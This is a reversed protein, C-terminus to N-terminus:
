EAVSIATIHPDSGQYWYLFAEIDVVDGIELGDVTTYVESDTGTLYVEVTFSYSAGNYGMTLWIDDGGDNKYTIEEVTLGKFSALQNQYNILEDTGLLETMDEPEAIYTDCEGEYFTFTADLIEVEGEFEGKYGNVIILTGPVLKAADEEACAMNYIFYAGDEDAAYVTIANDWWAQTAQVWCAVTVETDMEAAIYADYSMINAEEEDVPETEEEVPAETTEEAPAATTEEAPAATTDEAADNNGACAVLSLAMVLALIIAFLKKM